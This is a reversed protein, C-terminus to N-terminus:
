HAYDRLLRSIASQLSVPLTARVPLYYHRADAFPQCKVADKETMVVTGPWDIDEFRFPHHDPFVHPTLAVGLANLTEFFREPHGIGAVAHVSSPPSSLAQACDETSVPLFDGPTLQMEVGNRLVCDAKALRWAGERLPGAPLPWGNGLQRKGDLVIIEFDRALRYHQLGDDSLVVNCDSTALLQQVAAVRDPGVVMPCQTQRVLLVPEDGVVRPHSDAHVTQPWTEAQGGYGRSVLGPRYGQARLWLALAAILPTKGTGGVTVNGVVIVPVPFRQSPLFHCHYLWYKLRAIAGFVLAFPLLFFRSWHRQYWYREIRFANRWKLNPRELNCKIYPPM